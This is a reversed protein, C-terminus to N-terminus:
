DERTNFFVSPLPHCEGCGIQPEKVVQSSKTCYASIKMEKGFALFRPKIEAHLQMTPCANARLISPCLCTRCLSSDWKAAEPTDVVLRCEEHSQGRYYNGYFYKCETGYPTRM